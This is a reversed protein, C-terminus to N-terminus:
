HFENRRSRQWRRQRKGFSCSIQEEQVWTSAVSRPLVLCGSSVKMSWLYIWKGCVWVCVSGAFGKQEGKPRGQTSKLSIDDVKLHKNRQCSSLLAEVLLPMPLSPHNTEWESFGKLCFYDKLRLTLRREASAYAPPLPTPPLHWAVNEHIMFQWVSLFHNRTRPLGLGPCLGRSDTCWNISEFLSGM